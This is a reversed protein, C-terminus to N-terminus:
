ETTATLGHTLDHHMEQVALETITRNDGGIHFEIYEGEDLTRYEKWDYITFVEGKYEDHSSRGTLEMNWNFNVKDEGCNDENQPDGYLKKLLSVSTRVVSSHFSTGCSSRDTKKAM